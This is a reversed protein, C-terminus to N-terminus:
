QNVRLGRCSRLGAKGWVDAQEKQASLWIGNMGMQVARQAWSPENAGQHLHVPGPLQSGATCTCIRNPPPVEPWGCDGSYNIESMTITNISCRRGARLIFVYQDSLFPFCCVRFVKEKDLTKKLCSTSLSKRDKSKVLLMFREWFDLVDQHKVNMWLLSIVTVQSLVVKWIKYCSTTKKIELNQISWKCPKENGIVFSLCIFSAELALYKGSANKHM